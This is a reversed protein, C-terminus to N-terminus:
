ERVEWWLDKYIPLGDSKSSTPTFSEDIAFPFWERLMGENNDATYRNDYNTNYKTDTSHATSIVIKNKEDPESATHSYQICLNQSQTSGKGATLYVYGSYSPLGSEHSVKIGGWNFYNVKASGYTGKAGRSIGMNITWGSILKDSSGPVGGAGYIHQYDANTTGWAYTNTGGIHWSLFHGVNGNLRAAVPSENWTTGTDVSGRQYVADAVILTIGKVFEDDSIKRYSYVPAKATDDHLTSTIDGLVAQIEDGNSNIRKAILRYYHKYDRQVKLLGDHEGTIAPAQTSGRTLRTSTTFESKTATNLATLTLSNNGNNVWDIDYWDQNVRTVEGNKSITAIPFWKSGCNKNLVQIEYCDGTIGDGVGRKRGNSQDISWNITESFTEATKVPETAYFTVLSFQYGM